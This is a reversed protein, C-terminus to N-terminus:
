PQPESAQPEAPQPESPLLRELMKAFMEAAEGFLAVPFDECKYDLRVRGDPMARFTVLIYREGSSMLQRIFNEAKLRLERREKGSLKGTPKPPEVFGSPKM